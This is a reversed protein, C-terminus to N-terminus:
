RITSDDVGSLPSTIALYPVLIPNQVLPHILASTTINGRNSMRGGGEGEGQLPSPIHKEAGDLPLVLAPTSRKKPKINRGVGEGEGQLPSPIHKEAGDLPLVLAPTSRKKPKINEVGM